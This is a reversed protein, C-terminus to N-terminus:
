LMTAVAGARLPIGETSLAKVFARADNCSLADTDLIIPFLWYANQREPTDIPLHLIQPCNALREALLEANRRRRPLHWTDMRALEKLGIASQMETMRYNYGVMNHIYPLASEIELLSM